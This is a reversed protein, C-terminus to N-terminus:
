EQRTQEELLVEMGNPSGVKVIRYSWDKRPQEIIVEFTLGAQPWRGDAILSELGFRLRARDTGITLDPGGLCSAAWPSVGPHPWGPGSARYKEGEGLL